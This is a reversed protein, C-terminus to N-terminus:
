NGSAKKKAEEYKQMKAQYAKMQQIYSLVQSATPNGPNISLAKNCLQTAKDYDKSQAAKYAKNAFVNAAVPSQPNVALLKGIATNLNDNDGQTSYCGAEYSYIIELINKKEESKLEDPKLLSIYKNFADIATGKYSTDQAKQCMAVYYFGSPQDPFRKTFTQWTEMAKNYSGLGKVAAGYQTFARYYYDALTLQSTDAVKFLKDYWLNAAKFNNETSLQRAEQRIFDLNTSTDKDVFKNLYVLQLSDQHLKGMVDAYFKYDQSVIKDTDQRKFYIDMNKKADLSDGEALDSYAILKYLRTKTAENVPQNMLDNAQDIADKFKGQLYLVDVLNVKANLPDDTLAMYKNLNSQCKILDRYRYYSYLQYFAPAYNPDASVASNWDQLALSDQRARDWLNGEQTFAEAYKPDKAQATEYNTAAKGGGDPLNSYVNGIATYDEATLEYRRNKRDEQFQTVLDLAYQADAKPSQATANLIARVVDFDRGRSLDWAKQFAQKADTVNKDAVISVRGLGVYNLASNPDVQLGKQFDSKAASADDLGLEAIGLYYYTNADPKASVMQQLANKATQYKQYYIDQRADSLSQSFVSQTAFLLIAALMCLKTKMKRM